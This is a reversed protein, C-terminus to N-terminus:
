PYLSAVGWYDVNTFGNSMDLGLRFYVSLGSGASGNFVAGIRVQDSEIDYLDFSSEQLEWGTNTSMFVATFPFSVVWDVQFSCSLYVTGYEETFSIEAESIEGHNPFRMLKQTMTNKTSSDIASSTNDEILLDSEDLEQVFVDYFLSDAKSCSILSTVVLLVFLLQKM